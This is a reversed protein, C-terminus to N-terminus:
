HNAQLKKGVLVTYSWYYKIPRSHIRAEFGSDKLLQLADEPLMMLYSVVPRHIKDGDVIEYEIVQRVTEDDYGVKESVHYTREGDSFEGDDSYPRRDKERLLGDELSWNRIDFVLLGGPNLFAQCDNVLAQLAQVNQIHSISNGLLYIMDFRGYRKFYTGIQEWRCRSLSVGSLRPDALAISLMSQSGDLGQINLPADASLLSMVDGTGCAADLIRLPRGSFEQRIITQIIDAEHAFFQKTNLMLRYVRSITTYADITQTM